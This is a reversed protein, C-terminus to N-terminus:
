GALQPSPEAKVREIEEVALQAHDVREFLLSSTGDRQWRWEPGRMNHFFQAIRTRKRTQYNEDRAYRLDLELEPAQAHISASGDLHPKLTIGSLSRVMRWSMQQGVVTIARQNTIAYITRKRRRADDFFRGFLLYGAAVILPSAAIAYAVTAASLDDKEFDLAGEARLTSILISAFLISFPIRVLDVPYLRFGDRPSGVWRVKEGRHIAYEPIEGSPTLRVWLGLLLASALAALAVYKAFPATVFWRVDAYLSEVTIGGGSCNSCARDRAAPLSDEAVSTPASDLGARARQEPHPLEPQQAGATLACLCLISVVCARTQM